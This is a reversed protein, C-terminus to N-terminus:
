SGTQLPRPLRSGPRHNRQLESGDPAARALRHLWGMTSLLSPGETSREYVQEYVVATRHPCGHMTSRRSRARPNLTRQEPVPDTSEINSLATSYPVRGTGTGGPTLCHRGTGHCGLLCRAFMCVFSRTTTGTAAARVAHHRTPQWAQTESCCDTPSSKLYAAHPPLGPWSDESLGIADHGDVLRRHWQLLFAMARREARAQALQPRLQCLGPSNAPVLGQRGAQPRPCKRQRTRTAM